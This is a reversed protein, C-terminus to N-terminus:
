NMCSMYLMNCGFVHACMDMYNDYLLVILRSALSWKIWVLFCMIRAILLVVQSAVSVTLMAQTNIYM